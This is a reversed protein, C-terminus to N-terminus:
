GGEALWGLGRRLECSHCGGGDIVLLLQVLRRIHGSDRHLAVLVAEVLRVVHRVVVGLDMGLAEREVLDLWALGREPQGGVCPLALHDQLPHPLSTQSVCLLAVFHPSPLAADLLEFQEPREAPEGCLHPRM